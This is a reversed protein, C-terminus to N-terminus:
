ELIASRSDARLVVMLDRWYKGVAERDDLIFTDDAMLADFQEQSISVFHNFQERSLHDVSIFDFGEDMPTFIGSPPVENKLVYGERIREIIPLFIRTGIVWPQTATVFVSGSMVMVECYLPRMGALFAFSAGAM